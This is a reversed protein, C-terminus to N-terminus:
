PSAIKRDKATSRRRGGPPSPKAPGRWGRRDIEVVHREADALDLYIREDDGAVRVHVSCEAGQCLAMGELLGLADEVAQGGASRGEAIYYELRLWGRAARSRIPWTERRGDKTM